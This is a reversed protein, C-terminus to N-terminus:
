KVPVRPSIDTDSHEDVKLRLSAERGDAPLFLSFVTGSKGEQTRSRVQLRGQHKAVIGLSIWLGLGTGNIGKTTYFPEFIHRLVQPPMGHGTDAITIRIGHVSNNWLRSKSTRIVLRGGVRMSDFANGILNNLVQRIDGEYCIVSGAGRHQLQLAINSNALRGRYLGLAPELLEEATITRPRTSQRHFRLTHIAIQSVRSLEQQATAVYHLAEPERSVKEILYLLNMVAELPNNIEHSISAALRGVAALKESQALASEARKQQDIDSIAVVGGAIAGQEDFIPAAAFRVWALSGDGRRYLFDEPPIPHGSTMAHRLPYEEERVPNGDAHFAICRDYAEINSLPLPSHRLIREVSRNALVIEGTHKALLVGVPLNDVMVHLTEREQKLEALADRIEYQRQRARLAARVSSVLTATRIPRELLVTSGLPLRESELRRSQVTDMGSGTLILVPLDSWPPQHKILQGLQEIAATHLTEEAILLPGIPDEAFRRLLPQLDECVEAVLGAHRLVEVILEADRGFPAIVRVVLSM